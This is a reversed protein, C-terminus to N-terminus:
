WPTPTPTHTPSQNGTRGGLSITVQQVVELLDGLACEHTSSHNLDGEDHGLGATGNSVTARTHTGAPISSRSAGDLWICTRVRHLQPQM